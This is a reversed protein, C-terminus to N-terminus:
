SRLPFTRFTKLTITTVQLMMMMYSFTGTTNGAPASGNWYLLTWNLSDGPLEQEWRRPATKELPEMWTHETPWHSAYLCFFPFFAAKEMRKFERDSWYRNINSLWVHQSMKRWLSVLMNEPAKTLFNKRTNDRLLSPLDTYWTWQTHRLLAPLYECFYFRALCKETNGEVYM